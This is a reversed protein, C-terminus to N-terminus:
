ELVLANKLLKKANIGHLPGHYSVLIAGNSYNKLQKIKEVIVKGTKM